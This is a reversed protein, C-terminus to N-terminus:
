ENPTPAAFLAQLAGNLAADGAGDPIARLVVLLEEPTVSRSGSVLSYSDSAGIRHLEHRIAAQVEVDGFHTM